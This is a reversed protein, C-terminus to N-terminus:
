NDPFIRSKKLIALLLMTASCPWQFLLIERFTWFNTKNFLIFTNKSFFINNEYFIALPLLTLTSHLQILLADCFTRFKAERKFFFQNRSFFRSNKLFRWRRCTQQLICSFYYFKEFVYFFKPKKNLFLLHTKRFKKPNKKLIASHPLSATFHLEVLLFSWFTWFIPAKFFMSPNM